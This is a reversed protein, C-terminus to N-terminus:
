SGVKTSIKYSMYSDLLGEGQKIPDSVSIELAPVAAAAPMKAGKTFIFRVGTARALSLSFTFLLESACAYGM